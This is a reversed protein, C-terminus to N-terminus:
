EFLSEQRMAEGIMRRVRERGALFGELLKKEKSENSLTEAIAQAVRYFVDSVGYGTRALLDMMEDREGAEWYRLARHLVNILERPAKEMDEKRRQHPGLVRM